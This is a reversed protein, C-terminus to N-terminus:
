WMHREQASSTNKCHPVQLFHGFIWVVFNLISFRCIQKAISIKGINKRDYRVKLGLVLGHFKWLFFQSNAIKFFPWRLFRGNQIKKSNKKQKMGIFILRLNHSPISPVWNQHKGQNGDFEKCNPQLIYFDPLNPHNKVYFKLVEQSRGM